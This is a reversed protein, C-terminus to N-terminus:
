LTVGITESNKELKERHWELRLPTERLYLINGRCGRSGGKIEKKNSGLVRENGKETLGLRGAYWGRKGVKLFSM